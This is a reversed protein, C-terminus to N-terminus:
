GSARVYRANNFVGNLWDGDLNHKLIYDDVKDPLHIVKAGGCAAAFRKAQEQGDPDFVIYNDHGTAAQISSHWSMKGQLGMVQVGPTDLTQGVVIAKIEGEIWVIKQTTFGVDPDWMFPQVPLNREPRYKDNPTLPHLLRHRINMLEHGAAFIPITLAPTTLEGQKTWYHGEKQYGLQCFDIAWDEVGWRYWVARQEPTMNDHYHLHPSLKRLEALIQDAEKIKEELERQVREAHEKALRLQTERDIEQSGGLWRCAEIFEMHQWKMVFSIADGCGCDGSFCVWRDGKIAFGQPNDGRHLPCPGQMWAGARHLHTGAREVLEELNTRALLADIWTRDM